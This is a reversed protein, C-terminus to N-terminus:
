IPSIIGLMCVINYIYSSSIYLLLITHIDVDISILMSVAIGATFYKIQIASTYKLVDSFM